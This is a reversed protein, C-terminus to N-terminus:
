FMQIIMITNGILQLKKQKELLILFNKETEISEQLMSSDNKIIKGDVSLGYKFSYGDEIANIYIYHSLRNYGGYFGFFVIKNEDQM